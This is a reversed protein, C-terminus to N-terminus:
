KVEGILKVVEGKVHGDDWMGGYFAALKGAADILFLDTKHDLDGTPTAFARFGFEYKFDSFQRVDPRLMKANTNQIGQAAGWVKLREPTDYDPDFTFVLLNVKDGFGDKELASQLAAIKQGQLPCMQVNKCRTFIFTAVAPKGKISKLDFPKGDQDTFHFDLGLAERDKAGKIGPTKEPTGNAPKATVKSPTEPVAPTTAANKRLDALTPTPEDCCSGLEAEVVGANAGPGQKDTHAGPECGLVALPLLLAGAAFISRLTPM